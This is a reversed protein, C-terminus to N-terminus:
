SVSQDELPEAKSSPRNSILLLEEEPIYGSNLLSGFRISFHPNSELIHIELDKNEALYNYDKETLICFVREQSQLRQRMREFDYEEFIPRQLYYTMSPLATRFYGASEGDPSAIEIVQCFRKVPRYKELEPLYIWASIAYVMWLATALVGLSYRLRKRILCGILLMSGALLVMSPLYHLVLHINPMFSRFVYPAFLALALLLLALLGFACFCWIKESGPAMNAKIASISSADNLLPTKDAESANKRITRDLIGSIIIAAAPYLPAIYYEQKNKSLSFLLFTCVCWILPLGFELSKLPAMSKRSIWLIGVACLALISWPFFDSLGVALYYLAGRSPGLSESAFRGLNDRLFFPAIYTWGHKYYILAYWPLAIIMFIATGTFIYVARLRFRHAWLAWVLYSVGPIFLAVPGKTLFGLSAFLYAYAWASRKNIQIARVLFFLTGTLFFLLLIDIPLRRALIFIRATTCAIISAIIAAQPNFLRRGLGYCFIIVGMAALASPVRVAFESVGFLKYSLLVAWYTLPPKQARPVFNFHPAFYDGSDLM